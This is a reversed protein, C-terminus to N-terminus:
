SFTTGSRKLPARAGSGSPNPTSAVIRYLAFDRPSFNSFVLKLRLTGSARTKRLGATTILREISNSAEGRSTATTLVFNLKDLYAEDGKCTLGKHRFRNLSDALIRMLVRTRVRSATKSLSESAPHIRDLKSSKVPFLRNGAFERRCQPDRLGM